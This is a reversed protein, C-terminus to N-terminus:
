PIVITLNKYLPPVSLGGGGVGGFFAWGIGEKFLFHIGDELTITSVWEVMEKGDELTITSVWEVM